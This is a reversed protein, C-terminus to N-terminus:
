CELDAIRDKLIDAIDNLGDPKKSKLDKIKQREVLDLMEQYVERQKDAVFEAIDDVSTEIVGYESTDKTFHQEVEEQLKEWM